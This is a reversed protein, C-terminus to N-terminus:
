YVMARDSERARCELRPVRGEQPTLECVSREKLKFRALVIRVGIFPPTGYYLQQSSERYYRYQHCHSSRTHDLRFDKGCDPGHGRQRGDRNGDLLELPLHVHARKRDHFDFVEISAVLGDM